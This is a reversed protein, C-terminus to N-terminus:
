WLWKEVTGKRTDERIAEAEANTRNAEAQAQAMEKFQERSKNVNEYRYTAM